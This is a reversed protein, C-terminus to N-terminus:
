EADQLRKEYACPRDPYIAISHVKRKEKPPLTMYDDGFIQKLYRETNHPAPFLHGEFEIQKLPFFEAIPVPKLYHMTEGSSILYEGEENSFTNVAKIFIKTLPGLRVYRNHTLKSAIVLLRFLKNHLTKEDVRMAPFIDMCIGQHYRIEKGEEWADILTSNRDRIKAIFNLAYPDTEKTQLFMDDPLAKVAIKLFTEYDNKPMSVDLDDDWPIFGKHRVAGLLTGFDLWYTLQNEQCIKDFALLQKLMIDHTHKLVDSDLNEKMAEKGLINKKIDYGVTLM